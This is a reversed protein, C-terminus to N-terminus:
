CATVIAVAPSRDVIALQEELYTPAWLDDSDLLSLLPARAVRLASNRAASPGGRARRLLTVRSDRVARGAVVEGTADASGDDVVILEFDSWTQNLASDIAEGIYAETDHAPMIISVAPTRTEQSLPRRTMGLHAARLPHATLHGANFQQSNAFATRLLPACNCLQPFATGVRAGGPTLIWSLPAGTERHRPM